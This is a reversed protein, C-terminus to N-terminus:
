RRSRCYLGHGGAGIIKQNNPPTRTRPRGLDGLILRLGRTRQSHPPGLQTRRGVNDLRTTQPGTPVAQQSGMQGEQLPSLVAERETMM